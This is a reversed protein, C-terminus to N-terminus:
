HTSAHILDDIIDDCTRTPRWGTARQLKEPTGVLTPVEVARALAPDTRVPAIIGIRALVRAALAGSAHGTGSCVNYAEGATGRAALLIYAEVVDRVHLYDRVPETNGMAFDGPAGDRIALARRVLAPLLFHPPQGPGSHNFSRTAVVRLGDARAAQLAAVEQAAKSAAYVTLPRQPSEERLPLEAPEHRGYQEASGVVLITPDITGARRRSATEALLRASAVVNVEYAEAPDAAAQPVSSVGALHFIADPRSEDLLRAPTAPARLDASLWRVAARRDAPLAPSPTVDGITAGAVDWGQELLAACLWQGVFGGAGTVLARM